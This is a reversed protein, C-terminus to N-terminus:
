NQWFPKDAQILPPMSVWINYDAMGVKDGSIFNNDIQSTFDKLSLILQESKAELKYYVVEYWLPVTNEMFFKEVKNDGIIDRCGFNEIQTGRSVLCM